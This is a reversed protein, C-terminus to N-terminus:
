QEKSIFSTIVAHGLEKFQDKKEIALTGCPYVLGRKKQSRLYQHAAILCAGEYNIKLLDEPLPEKNRAMVELPMYGPSNHETGFLVVFGHGHFYKVFDTLIKLSNRGPILEICRVNLQLLEQMLHEQDVEFETFNGKPDDLLVPYCPIGGAQLIMSIIQKVPLFSRENEAVFARGGAKLLRSRIENETLDPREPDSSYASIGFLKAYFANRAQLDGFKEEAIVRIAKAIHRERVLERAFNKKIYAYDIHISTDMEGVIQQVKAIMQRIQKQSEKQVSRLRLGSFFGTHFPHDLGKGSFYIRGPNNPDNIRVGLQQKEKMLGIFEINFLPFIRNLSAHYGFEDYGDAVYFDNIGLVKIKESVAQKFIAEITDFSSFSYPTHIHANVLYFSEHDRQKNWALLVDESPLSQFYNM